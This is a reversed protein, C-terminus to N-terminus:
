KSSQDLSLADPLVEIKTHANFGLFAGLCGNKLVESFFACTLMRQM